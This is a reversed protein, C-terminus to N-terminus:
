GFDIPDEPGYKPPEALDVSEAYLVKPREKIFYYDRVASEEIVTYLQHPRKQLTPLWEKINNSNIEKPIEIPVLVYQADETRVHEFVRIRKDSM